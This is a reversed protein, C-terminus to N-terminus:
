GSGVGEAVEPLVDDYYRADRPPPVDSTQGSLVKDQLTRHAHVYSILICHHVFYDHYECPVTYTSM